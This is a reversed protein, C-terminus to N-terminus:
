EEKNGVYTTRAGSIKYVTCVRVAIVITQPGFESYQLWLAALTVDPMTVTHNSPPNRLHVAGSTITFCHNVNQFVRLMGMASVM